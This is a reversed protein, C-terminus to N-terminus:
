YVIVALAAMSEPRTESGGTSGSTFNISCTGSVSHTHAGAAANTLTIGTTASATNTNYVVGVGSGSAIGFTGPFTPVGGHLHGPDSLSNSHTHNGPNDTTGSITGSGSVAHTHAGVQNSQYTGVALSGTSSRLYRGTDQLNPLSFHIGDAAGYTTGIVSFLYPYDTRLLSRGDCPFAGSVTAAAHFEIRGVRDKDLRNMSTGDCMVEKASGQPIEIASGGPTKVLLPFNGTTLNFITWRGLLAPMIVTQTSTLAGLFSQCRDPVVSPGAPPQTGGSLDLTGGTLSLHLGIGVLARDLIDTVSANFKDGWNNNNNGTGQKLFGLNASYVDATM